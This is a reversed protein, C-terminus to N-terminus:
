SAPSSPSGALECSAQGHGKRRVRCVIPRDHKHRTEAVQAIGSDPVATRRPQAGRGRAASRDPQSAGSVGSSGLRSKPPPSIPIAAGPYISTVRLTVTQTLGFDQDLRQRHVTDSLTARFTRRNTIIDVGRIRGNAAYLQATKAYGNILEIRALHLPDAFRYTLTEGVGSGRV